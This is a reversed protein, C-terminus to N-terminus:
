VDMAAHWAEYVATTINAPRRADGVIRVFPAADRLDDVDARRSRQGIACIVTTGALTRAGEPGEVEVGELTVKLARANLAVDIDTADIEALLIPRHRINADIALGDRMEALHVKKGQSAMLLACECGTLGGGVIVVETKSKAAIKSVKKPQRKTFQRMDAGAQELCKRVGQMLAFSTLTAGSVKDIAVSQKSVIERSLLNVAVKGVGPSELNHTVNIDSIKGKSITVIVNIPANHGLVRATYTGDKPAGAHAMGAALALSVFVSLAKVKM